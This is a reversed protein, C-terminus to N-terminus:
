SAMQTFVNNENECIWDQYEKWSKYLYLAFLNITIEEKISIINEM